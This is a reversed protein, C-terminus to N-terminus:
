CRDEVEQRAVRVDDVDKAKNIKGADKKIWVKGGCSGSGSM